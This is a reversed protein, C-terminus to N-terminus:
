LRVCVCERDSAHVRVFECVVSRLSERGRQFTNVSYYPLHFSTLSATVALIRELYVGGNFIKVDIKNGYEMIKNGEGERGGGAREFRLASRSAENMVARSRM